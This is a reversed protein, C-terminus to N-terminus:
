IQPRPHLPSPSPTYLSPPTNHPITSPYSAGFLMHRVGDPQAVRSEYWDSGGTPPGKADMTGDLTYVRGNIIAPPWNSAPMSTKIVHYDSGWPQYTKVRSSLGVHWTATTLFTAPVEDLITRHAETAATTRADGQAPGLVALAQDIESSSLQAFNQSDWEGYLAPQTKFFQQLFMNPDGSPLTNQAWLLLDFGQSCDTGSCGPEVMYKGSNDERVTARVGLGTLQEKIIPAMTVLDARFKYYVLDLSLQQGGKTRIGNVLPWGAEDLLRGAEIANTPLPSHDKGWVTNSPFPGTAVSAAVDAAGMGPPATAQALAPRDVMLALAQRVKKDALKPRATNFFMMYQYGVAYSKVTVDDAWNLQAVSNPPLNFGMDIEGSQLADTVEGGTSFRKIMIPTRQSASPYHTNPVLNLIGSTANHDKVTYPGTFVQRNLPVTQLNKYVVFPNEALVSAMVPTNIQTKISVKLESLASLTMTGVSSRAQPLVGNTRGLSYVVDAATVPSGDSFHRSPALTVEWTDPSVRVISSALHPILKGQSDVSFLKEGIGHSVLSWGATGIAPDEHNAMFTQGVKLSPLMYADAITKLTQGYPYTEDIIVDALQLAAHFQTLNDGGDQDPVNGGTFQFSSVQTNTWHMKKFRDFASLDPFTGGADHVFQGKYPPVHLSHTGRRYSAFLVKPLKPVFSYAVTAGHNAVYSSCEYRSVTGCYAADAEEKKDFLYGFFQSTPIVHPPLHNASSTCLARALLHALAHQTCPCVKIWEGNGLPSEEYTSAECIVKSASPAHYWSKTYWPDSFIADIEGNAMLAAHATEDNRHQIMALADGDAVKKAVCASSAYESAVVIKDRVGLMELFTLTVSQTVAVKELPVGFYKYGPGLDPATQGRPYLIYPPEETCQKSTVKQYSGMDEYTFLKAFSPKTTACQQTQGSPTTAALLLFAAM